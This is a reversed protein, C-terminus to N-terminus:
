EDDTAIARMIAEEESISAPRQHAGWVELQEATMEDPCYELMLADVKAQLADHRRLRYDSWDFTGDHLRNRTKLKKVARNNSPRKRRTQKHLVSGVWEDPIRVLKGRRVRYFGDELKIMKSM